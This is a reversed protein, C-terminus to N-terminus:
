LLFAAALMTQGMLYTIMVAVSRWRYEHIFINFALLADSAIFLLSGAIFLFVSPGHASIGRLLAAYGMALEVFTYLTVQVRLKKDIHPYASRLFAAGALIYPIIVAALPWTIVPVTPLLLAAIYFLHGVLFASLGLTFFIGSGLLLTDGLFGAGLAAAVFGGPQKAELLYFVLLLPLLLPKTAIMTRRASLGVAVCNIIALACFVGFVIMSPSM